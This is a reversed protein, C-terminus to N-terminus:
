ATTGAASKMAFGLYLAVAAIVVHLGSDALNNAVLGFLPQNGYYFGLVAVLAYIIGFIRFFNRIAQESAMGVIIAVVGTALHIINHLTNVEFVGLLRGGPTVAPIFGLIGVVVFIIGFGMAIKKMM